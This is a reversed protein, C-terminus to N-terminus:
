KINAVKNLYKILKKNKIKRKKQRDIFHSFIKENIKSKKKKMTNIPFKIQTRTASRKINTSLNSQDKLKPYHIPYNLGELAIQLNM